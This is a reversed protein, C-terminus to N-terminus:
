HKKRVSLGNDRDTFHVKGQGHEPAIIYWIFSSSEFEMDAATLVVVSRTRSLEWCGGTGAGYWARNLWGLGGGHSGTGLFVGTQGGEPTLSLRGAWAGQGSGNGVWAPARWGLRGGFQGGFRWALGGIWDWDVVGHNFMLCTTFRGAGLVMGSARLIGIRRWGSFGNPPTDFPILTGCPWGGSFSQRWFAM